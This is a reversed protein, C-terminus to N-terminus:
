EQPTTQPVAPARLNVVALIVILVLTILFGLHHVFTDTITDIIIPLTLAYLTIVYARGYTVPVRKIKAVILTALAFILTMFLYSLLSSIFVMVVALPALVFLGKKVYPRAQDYFMLASERSIEMNPFDKLSTVQISGDDLSLMDTQTILIATKYEEFRKLANDTVTPDVVWMNEITVPQEPDLNKLEEDLPFVIPLGDSTSVLGDTLTAVAGEPIREEVLVKVQDRDFFVKAVPVVYIITVATMFVVSEIILLISLYKVASGFRKGGFDAVYDKGIIAQKITTLFNNM